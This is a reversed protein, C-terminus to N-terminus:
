IDPDPEPPTVNGHHTDRQGVNEANECGTPNQGLNESGSERYLLFAVVPIYISQGNIVAM